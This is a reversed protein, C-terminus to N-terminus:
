ARIGLVKRLNALFDRVQSGTAWADGSRAVCAVGGGPDAEDDAILVIRIRPTMARIREALRRWGLGKRADLPDEIRSSIVLVPFVGRVVYQKLRDLAAGADQFIHVHTPTAALGNKIAELLALEPDVCIVVGSTEDTEAAAAVNARGPDESAMPLRDVSALLEQIPELDSEVGLEPDEPDDDDLIEAVEPEADWAAESDEIGDDKRSSIGEGFAGEELGLASAEDELRAGELALFEPSLATPLIIGEPGRWAETPDEDAEFTFEGEVWEFIRLIAAVAADWLAAAAMDSGPESEFGLQKLLEHANLAGDESAVRVIGGDRLGLWAVGAESCIELTGTKRSLAVVQLLEPLALDSLSGALSM